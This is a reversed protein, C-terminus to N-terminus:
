CISRGIVQCDIGVVSARCARDRVEAARQDSRRKGVFVSNRLRPICGFATLESRQAGSCFCSERGSAAVLLARLGRAAPRDPLGLSQDLRAAGRSVGGRGGTREVCCLSLACVMGRSDVAALVTALAYSGYGLAYPDFGGLGLAMPYLFLAAAIVVAFWVAQERAQILHRGVGYSVLSATLLLLTSVSLDGIVGRLYAVAPLGGAPIWGALLLLAVASARWQLSLNVHQLLLRGAAAILLSSGLLGMM